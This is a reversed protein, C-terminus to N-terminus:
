RRIKLSQEILGLRLLIEKIIQIYNKEEPNSLPSITLSCLIESTERKFIRIRQEQQYTLIIYDPKPGTTEKYYEEMTIGATMGETVIPEAEKEAKKTIKVTKIGPREIVKAGAEIVASEIQNAYKIEADPRMSYVFSTFYNYPFVSITPYDSVTRRVLYVTKTTCGILSLMFIVVTFKVIKVKRM